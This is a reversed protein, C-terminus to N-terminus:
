YHIFCFILAIIISALILIIIDIINRIFLNGFGDGYLKM